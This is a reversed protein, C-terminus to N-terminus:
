ENNDKEEDSDKLTSTGSLETDIKNVM